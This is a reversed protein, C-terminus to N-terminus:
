FASREPLRRRLLGRVARLCAAPDSAEILMTGVGRADAYRGLIPACDDRAALVLLPGNPRAASELAFDLASKLGAARELELHGIEDIGLIEAGDLGEGAERIFQEALRFASAAFRFRGFLLEGDELTEGPATERALRERRANFVGGNGDLYEMSFGLAKGDERRADAEQVVARVRLGDATLAAMISRLATTKGSAIPGAIVACVSRAAIGGEGRDGNPPSERASCKM